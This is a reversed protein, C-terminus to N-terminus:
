PAPLLKVIQAADLDYWIQFYRTGADHVPLRQQKWDLNREKILAFHIYNAQIIRRDKALHGSYQRRYEGLDPSGDAFMGPGAERLMGPLHAEMRAIDYESPAWGLLHGGEADLPTFLVGAYGIGGIPRRLEVSVARSGPDLGSQRKTETVCGPLSIVLFAVAVLSISRHWSPRTGRTAAPDVLPVTSVRRTSEAM